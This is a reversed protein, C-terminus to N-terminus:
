LYEDVGDYSSGYALVRITATCKQLPSLSQRGTADPRQQFYEDNTTIAEVIRLFLSKQMRFRRRFVEPTYTPREVFYDTMLRKEGIERERNCFRRRRRSRPVEVNLNHNSIIMDEIIRDVQRNQEHVREEWEEYETLQFSNSSSDSNTSSNENLSM